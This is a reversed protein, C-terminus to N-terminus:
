FFFLHILWLNFCFGILYIGLFLGLTAGINSILDIMTIKQLETIVRYNFQSYYINIGVSRKKFEKYSLGGNPFYNKVFIEDRAYLNYYSESPFDSYSILFDFTQSDCELPCQISCEAKFSHNLFHEYQAAVCILQDLGICPEASEVLKPHDLYYCNCKEIVIKQLCLDYCDRQRYTKNNKRFFNYLESEFKSLDICESYPYPYKYTFTRKIAINTMTGPMVEIVEPLYPLFSSNHIFIRLGNSTAATYKNYAVGLFFILNM